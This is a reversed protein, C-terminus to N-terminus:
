QRYGTEGEGEPDKRPFGQSGGYRRGGGYEDLEALERRLRRVDQQVPWDSFALVLLMILNVVPRM